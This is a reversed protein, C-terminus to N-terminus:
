ASKTKVGCDAFSTELLKQMKASLKPIFESDAHRAM